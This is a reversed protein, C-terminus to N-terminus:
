RANFHKGSVIYQEPVVIYPFSHPGDTQTYVVSITAMVIIRFRQQFPVEKFAAVIIVIRFFSFRSMPNDQNKNTRQSVRLSILFFVPM